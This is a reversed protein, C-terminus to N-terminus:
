VARRLYSPPPQWVPWPRSASLGASAAPGKLFHIDNEETTADYRVHADVM